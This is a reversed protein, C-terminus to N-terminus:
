HANLILRRTSTMFYKCRAIQGQSLNGYSDKCSRSITSSSDTDDSNNSVILGNAVNRWCMVILVFVTPYPCTLIM